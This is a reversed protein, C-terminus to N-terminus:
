MTSNGIVGMDKGSDGDGCDDNGRRRQPQRRGSVAAWAQLVRSVLAKGGNLLPKSVSPFADSALRKLSHLLLPMHPPSILAQPLDLPAATGISPVVSEETAPNAASAVM